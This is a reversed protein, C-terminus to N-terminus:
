HEERRSVLVGTASAEPRLLARAEDRVQDLTVAEILEPWAEIEEMTAGTVLGSGFVLAARYTGDRARLGAARLAQQARRMDAEAMGDGRLREIETEIGRELTSPTVGPAPVAVLAFPTPDVASPSYDLHIEAALGLDRVLRRYLVSSPGGGLLEALVETAATRHKDPAGYAPALFLQMLLPRGARPDVMIVHREAIPDPEVTRKRTVPVAALPAYYREVLAKLHDLQVDGAVVLIANNPAYWRRYFELADARTWGRIEHMWGIVPVGYRHNVFLAAMVQEHLLAEPDNDTRLRREEVIVEREVHVNEESLDLNVMRDAELAMVRELNEIGVTAYYATYDYSTFANLEGGARAITRAYSDDPNMRTGKFMLHEFFHALGSKGPEEDASGVRYWLMHTAIPVRHDPILVVKLGNALDFTKAHLLGASAGEVEGGLCLLAVM